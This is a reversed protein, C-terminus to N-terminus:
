KQARTLNSNNDGGVGNYMIMQAVTGFEYHFEDVSTGWKGTGVNGLYRDEISM